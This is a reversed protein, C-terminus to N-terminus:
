NEAAQTLRSFSVLDYLRYILNTPLKM